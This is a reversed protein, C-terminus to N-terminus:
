QNYPCNVHPIQGSHQTIAGLADLVKRCTAMCFYKKKIMNVTMFFLTYYIRTYGDFIPSKPGALCILHEEKNDSNVVTVGIGMDIGVVVANRIRSGSDYKLTAGELESYDRYKM